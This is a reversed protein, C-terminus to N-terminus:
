KRRALRGGRRQSRFVCNFLLQLSPLLQWRRAWKNAPDTNKGGPGNGGGGRWPKMKIKKRTHIKNKKRSGEGSNQLRALSLATASSSHPAASAITPGRGRILRGPGAGAAPQGRPRPTAPAGRRAAAEGRLLRPISSRRPRAYAPSSRAPSPASPLFPLFSLRFSFIGGDRLSLFFSSFRPPADIHLFTGTRRRLRM